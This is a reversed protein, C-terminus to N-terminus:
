LCLTLDGDLNVWDNIKQTTAMANWMTEKNAYTSEEKKTVYNLVLYCSSVQFIKSTARTIPGQKEEQLSPFVHFDSWWVEVPFFSFPAFTAFNNHFRWAACIFLCLRRESFWWVMRQRASSQSAVHFVADPIPSIWHCILPKWIFTLFGIGCACPHLYCDTM